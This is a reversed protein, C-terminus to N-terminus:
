RRGKKEFYQQHDETALYYERALEIQTVIEKDFSGSKQQKEKSQKATVEQKQNHFFIVSRYQEGRDPRQRNLTTPDHITWFV